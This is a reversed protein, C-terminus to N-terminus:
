SKRGVCCIHRSCSDRTRMRGVLWGFGDNGDDSVLTMAEGGKCQPGLQVARGRLIRKGKTGCVDDM